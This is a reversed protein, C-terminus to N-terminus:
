GNAHTHALRIELQIWDEAFHFVTPTLPPPPPPPAIRVQKSAQPSPFAGDRRLSRPRVSPTNGGRERKNQFVKNKCLSFCHSLFFVGEEANGGNDKFSILFSTRFPATQKLCEIHPDMRCANLVPKDRVSPQPGSSM